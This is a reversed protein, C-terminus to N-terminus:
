NGAPPTSSGAAEISVGEQSLRVPPNGDNTVITVPGWPKPPEEITLNVTNSWAPFYNWSPWGYSLSVPYPPVNSATCAALCAGLALAATIGRDWM